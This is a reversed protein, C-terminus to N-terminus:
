TQQMLIFLQMDISAFFESIPKLKGFTHTSTLLFFYTSYSVKKPDTLHESSAFSKATALPPACRFVQGHCPTHAVLIIAM